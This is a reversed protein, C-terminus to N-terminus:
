PLNEPMYVLGQHDCLSQIQHIRYFDAHKEIIEVDDLFGLFTVHTVPFCRPYRFKIHKSITQYM